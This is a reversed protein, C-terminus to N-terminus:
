HIQVRIVHEPPSQCNDELCPLKCLVACDICVMIMLLNVCRFAFPDCVSSDPDWSGLQSISGVLFINEGFVTEATEEFSVAVSGGGGSGSGSGKAGTHIALADRARVTATFKGGSVTFRCRVCVM